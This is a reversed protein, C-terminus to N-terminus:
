RRMRRDFDWKRYIQKLRSIQAPGFFLFYNAYMALLYLRDIWSDTLFHYALMALTVWALWKMKVPIIMFLQVEM